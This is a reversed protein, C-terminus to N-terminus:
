QCLNIAKIAYNFVDRRYAYTNPGFSPISSIMGRDYAYQILPKQWTVAGTGNFRWDDYITDQFNLDAGNMLMALAESRTINKLPRFFIDGYQNRDNQSIVGEQALTEAVRCVWENPYNSSVDSFMNDCVYQGAPPTNQISGCIEGVKLTVAAVEQRSITRDLNYENCTNKYGVVGKAALQEVSTCDSSTYAQASLALFLCSVTLATHSFFTKM